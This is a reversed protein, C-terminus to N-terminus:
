QHGWHEDNIDGPVQFNVSVALLLVMCAIQHRAPIDTASTTRPVPNAVGVVLTTAQTNDFASCDAL